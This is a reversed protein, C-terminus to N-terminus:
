SDKHAYREVSERTVLREGRNSTHIVAIEGTEEAKKLLRQATRISVELIEAAEHTGIIDPETM